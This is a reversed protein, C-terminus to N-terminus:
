LRVLAMYVATGVLISVLPNRWKLQLVLTVMGAVYPAARAVIDGAPKAAEGCHCYVVLMAIAAPSLVRGVYRVVRPPEKGGGFLVFPLARLVFSLAGVALLVTLAYLGKADML